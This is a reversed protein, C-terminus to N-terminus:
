KPSPFALVRLYSTMARLPQLFGLLSIVGLVSLAALLEPSYLISMSLPGRLRSATLTYITVLPLTGCLTSALFTSFPVRIVGCFVNILPSPFWPSCRLLVLMLFVSKIELRRLAPPSSTTKRFFHFAAASGLVTATVAITTGKVSGFFYGSALYFLPNTPASFFVTSAFLLIFIGMSLLLPWSLPLEQVGAPPLLAWIERGCSRFCIIGAVAVALYGILIFQYAKDKMENVARENLCQALFYSRTLSLTIL